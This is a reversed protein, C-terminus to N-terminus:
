PSDLCISARVLIDPALRIQRFHAHLRPLHLALLQEFQFTRLKLHPVEPHWLLRMALGSTASMAATMLWFADGAARTHAPASEWQLQGGGSSPQLTAHHHSTSSSSAYYGGDLSQASQDSRYGGDEGEEDTTTTPTPSPPHHQQHHHALAGGGHPLAPASSSSLKRASAAAAAAAASSTSVSSSLSTTPCDYPHQIRRAARPAHTFPSPPLLQRRLAFLLGAAVYNMGQM